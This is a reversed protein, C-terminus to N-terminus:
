ASALQIRAALNLVFWGGNAVTWAAGMRAPVAAFIPLQIAIAACLLLSSGGVAVAETEKFFVSLGGGSTMRGEFLLGVLAIVLPFVLAVLAAQASLVGVNIDQLDRYYDGSLPSISLGIWSPEVRLSLFTLASYLSLAIGVVIWTHRTAGEVIRRGWSDALAATTPNRAFHDRVARRSIADLGPKWLAVLARFLLRSEATPKRYTM